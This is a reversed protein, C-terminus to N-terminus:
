LFNKLFIQHDLVKPQSIYCRHYEILRIRLQFLCTPREGLVPDYKMKHCLYLNTASNLITNYNTLNTPLHHHHTNCLQVLYLQTIYSRGQWNETRWGPRSWSWRGSKVHFYIKYQSVLQKTGRHSALAWVAVSGSLSCKTEAKYITEM